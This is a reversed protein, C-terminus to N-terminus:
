NDRKAGKKYLFVVALFCLLLGVIAPKLVSKGADVSQWISWVVKAVAILLLVGLGMFMSRKWFALALRFLSIPISFSILINKLGWDASLYAKEMNLFAVVEADPYLPEPFWFMSTLLAFVGLFM